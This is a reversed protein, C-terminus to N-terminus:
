ENVTGSPEDFIQPDTNQSTGQQSDDLPYKTEPLYLSGGRGCSQLLIFLIFCLIKRM